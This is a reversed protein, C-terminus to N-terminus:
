RGFKAGTILTPADVRTGCVNRATAEASYGATGGYDAPHDSLVELM